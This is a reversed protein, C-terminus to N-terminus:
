YYKNFSTIVLQSVLKRAKEAIILSLGVKARTMAVYLFKKKSDNFSEEDLDTVIVFRSELGKFDGTNCFSVSPSPYIWSPVSTIVLIKNKLDNPLLSVCSQAFPLHSLITIEGPLVDNKLLIVLIKKLILVAEGTNAAYEYQVLPGAGNTPTGVDAATLLRIQDIITQTNRCNRNLSMRTPHYLSLMELAGSDFSGSIGLQNNKDLFVRWVGKEFGGKLLKEAFALEIFNMVDQAEDIILVDYQETFTGDASTNVHVGSPVNQRIYAALLPNKVLFFVSSGNEAHRRAVDTAVLTKGTGAGGECIIRDNTEVGDYVQYQQITMELMRVELDRAESALSRVLDFNPRLYTVLKEFTVKDITNAQPMLSEQYAILRRLHKQFLEPSSTKLQDLVIVSSWEPSSYIFKSHPFVVGFGSAMRCVPHDIGFHERVLKLLSFMASEAQRFPGESSKHDEGFRDMYHWIGDNGRSVRGGKVELVYMGSRTVILFDIEGSRKYNHKTLRLSHFCISDPDPLTIEALYKYVKKEASSNNYDGATSPIIRM